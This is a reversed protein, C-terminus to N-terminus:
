YKGHAYSGLATTKTSEPLDRAVSPKKSPHDTWSAGLYVAGFFGFGGLWMAFGFPASWYPFDFDIATEPAVGDNWILEDEEHLQPPPHPQLRPHPLLAPPPSPRVKHPPPTCYFAARPGM